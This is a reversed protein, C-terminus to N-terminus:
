APKFNGKIESIEEKLSHVMSALNHISVDASPLETSLFAKAEWAELLDDINLNYSKYAPNDSSLKIIGETKVLNKARKYVIGENRTLFIYTKDDKINFWNEVYQGIIFTGSVLPLMSDGKIEFARFSGNTFIPLQFSPLTEIYETDSYGNLYGAAAKQPILIIKENDDKDVKVSLVRLRKGDIDKRILKKESTTDTYDESILNDVSVELVHSMKILNSVGPEARGEEYAGV